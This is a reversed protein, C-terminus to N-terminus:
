SPRWRSPRRPSWGRRAAAVDLGARAGTRRDAGTPAALGRLELVIDRASQWRHRPGKGLCRRVIRDLAPAAALLGAAVTMAPPERELIAAILGAQSPAEFARRGTAMEFLVAGLSFIDSRADVERGSLQEPSM